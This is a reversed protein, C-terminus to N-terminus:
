KDDMPRYEQEKTDYNPTVTHQIIFSDENGSSDIAKVILAGVTTGIGVAGGVCFTFLGLDGVVSGQFLSKLQSEGVFEISSIREYGLTKIVKLYM